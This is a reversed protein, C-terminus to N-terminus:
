LTTLLKACAFRWLVNRILLILYSFFKWVKSLISVVMNLRELTFLNAGLMNERLIGSFVSQHQKAFDV